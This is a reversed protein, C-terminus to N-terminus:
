WKAKFWEIAGPLDEFTYPKGQADTVTGSFTGYVFRTQSSLVGWNFGRSFDKFPTFVVEAFSTPNPDDATTQNSRITMGNMLNLPDHSIVVSNLKHIKGDITFLDEVSTGNKALGGGFNLSFKKGGLWGRANGWVYNTKFLFVSRLHSSMATCKDNEVTREAEGRISVVASCIQNFSKHSYAFYRHNDFVPSIEYYDEATLNRDSRASLKIQGPLVVSLDWRCVLLSPVPLQKVQVVLDDKHFTFDFQSCNFPNDAMKPLTSSSLGVWVTKESSFGQKTEFDFTEVIATASYNTSVVSVQVWLDGLQLSYVEAKKVRINRLFKLGFWVPYVSGHDYHKLYHTSWGTENLQGTKNLLPGATLIQHQVEVSMATLKPTDKHSIFLNFILYAGLIYTLVNSVKDSLSM